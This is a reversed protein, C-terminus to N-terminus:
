SLKKEIIDAITSNGNGNENLGIEKFFVNVKDKYVKYNFKKINEIFELESKSISFPIKDLPFCCGRDNNIYSDFDTAFLFTPKGVIAMDPMSGSFDTVLIESISMLEDIDPYQTVDFISSSSPLDLKSLSINPHLRLLLVFEKNFKKEFESLIPLYNWKYPTLCGDVRFTPAYLIIFKNKPIDYQNYVKEKLNAIPRFAQSCRPRGTKIVQGNYWFSQMFLSIQFDNNSYMLDTKQADEKAKKVYEPSLKEEIAQEVQKLGFTGHWTQLYFQGNRKRPKPTSKANDIWVKSTLYHYTRKWSNYPVKKIEEPMKANLDNVLWIYKAKIKRRSLELYIYKADDCFGKGNFSNFVIKKQLPLFQAFFLFIRIPFWYFFVFTKNNRLYDRINM